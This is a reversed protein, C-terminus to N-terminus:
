CEETEQVFSSSLCRHPPSPFHNAIVFLAEQDFVQPVVISHACVVQRPEAQVLWGGSLRRSQGPRRSTKGEGSTTLRWM